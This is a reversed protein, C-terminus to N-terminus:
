MGMPNKRKYVVETSVKEIKYLQKKVILSLYRLGDAFHSSADPVPTNSYTNLNEIWERHYSSLATILAQCKEADIWIAPFLTSTREIGDLVSDEKDLKHFILGLNFATELITKGTGTEIRNIDFPAFHRGYNYKFQVKYDDLMSKFFPIGGRVDGKDGLCFINVIRVQMDIVQFFIWPMHSGVGLDCITHVPYEPNHPVIGIRNEERAQAMETAYYAGEVAAIFAEELYSPHEKFILHKLIRKKAAYFARQEPTLKKNYIKDIKDLYKSIEPSIEVFAPDTINSAKEHWPIFHLKYDLRGLPKNKQQLLEAAKCMEPFDGLGGEATSEIFIMGSEHVTEMAGAKIEAAKAPAHTCIWGYESVLLIQLTGSRMSTGVYISSNNSLILECSDDKILYLETKLDDPLNDYAFKVKDRFIKKADVLKHAIIGARVNSNFLCADLMFIAIFSTVGHQRSKPIINLWWLAFYLVTQVANMTFLIKKGQEDIIYYLHNLRWHRNALKNARKTQVQCNEAVAVM